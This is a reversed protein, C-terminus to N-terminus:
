PEVGLRKWVSEGEDIGEAKLKPYTRLLFIALPVVGLLIIALDPLARVSGILQVLGREFFSADRAAWLGDKYATWTQVIGVPFLTGLTMMFLGANLGWFSLKLLGDNWAERKVLGRWSFLLLAISLMGYTGFLAAHGHNMTLYTGHEFYNVIPLNILFGFVGAGLFNWFSAAVLFYLPWRYPFDAGEKRVSRYEMMGRVVLGFLPVPEMSSFVSGVALWFSPGGYWFYHHATGLIGSLFTIAATFYAVRLAAKASVLGMAVMVLAIVAVGFFEFISEVWIHVVFWRWYDAVTLHSGRGYFLGFGYFAVVLIASFVYFVVLARYDPSTTSSGPRLLHGVARYVIGLWAILGVFLLIQWLRGLELYEWGQHGLWFWWEGLKGKIGLVQGALSGVAVLLIAGFLLQVLLGQKAPERGGIVPALYIASAVWTTAIWFIALQLHWSKAWSYPIFGAIEEVYFSGPHVTYHALLGGFATQLLFLLIVVLFFKAARLQSPTLPADILKQALPVGKAPGYWLEYSHVFYIFLGLVVFLSLVGGISWIYTEASPVNGVLKDPPWNSTYSYDEGPRNVVAAWATWAFFRAIQTREEPTPVTNPLFGYRPDGEGLAREWLAAVRELGKVQAATLQLTDTAEDYRNAKMEAAVLADLAQREAPGLAEPATGHRAAALEAQVARGWEHLSVASFETGRQSGHGWVSGHDMLGYRQYVDQGALIDARTFLVAGDPGVVKDPYPALKERIAWGGGLLGAMAVVFCVVAIWKLRGTTM